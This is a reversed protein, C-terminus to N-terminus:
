CEVSHPCSCCPGAPLELRSQATSALELSPSTPGTQQLARHLSAKIPMCPGTLEAKAEYCIPQAGLGAHPRSCEQNSKSHRGALWRHANVRSICSQRWISPEPLMNALLTQEGASYVLVLFSGDHLVVRDPPESSLMFRLCAAWVHADGATPVGAVWVGVM